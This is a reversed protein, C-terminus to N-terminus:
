DLTELRLDCFELPREVLVRQFAPKICRELDRLDDLNVSQRICILRGNVAEEFQEPVVTVSQCRLHLYDDGIM